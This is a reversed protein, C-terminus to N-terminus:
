LIARFLTVIYAEIDTHVADRHVGAPDLCVESDKLRLAPECVDTFVFHRGPVVHFGPPTPLETVLGIANREGPLQSQDPRFLLVPMTAATLEDHRFPVAFPDLLVIAKM